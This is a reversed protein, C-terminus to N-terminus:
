MKRSREIGPTQIHENLRANQHENEILQMLFAVAPTDMKDVDRLIKLAAQPDSLPYLYEIMELQEGICAMQLPHSECDKVDCLPILYKVVEWQGEGAADGAASLIADRECEAVLIKVCELFGWEAAMCISRAVADEGAHSALLQVVLPHNKNVAIELVHEPVYGLAGFLRRVEEVNGAESAQYLANRLQLTM